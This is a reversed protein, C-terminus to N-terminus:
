EKRTCASKIQFLMGMSLILELNRIIWVSGIKIELENRREEYFKTTHKNINYM